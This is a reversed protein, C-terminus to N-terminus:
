GNKASEKLVTDLIKEVNNKLYLMSDPIYLKYFIIDNLLIKMVKSSLIDRIMNASFYETGICNELLISTKEIVNRVLTIKVDTLDHRCLVFISKLRPFYNQNLDFGKLGIVDLPVYAKNQVTKIASDFIKIEDFFRMCTQETLKLKQSYSYCVVHGGDCSLYITDDSFVPCYRGFASVLTTKGTGKPACFAVIGENAYVSSSHLLLEGKYAAFVAAPLNFLTSRVEELKNYKVIIKNLGSDIFYSAIPSEICFTHNENAKMKEKLAYNGQISSLTIVDKHM